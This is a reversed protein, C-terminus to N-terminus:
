FGEQKLMLDLRGQFEEVIKFQENTLDQGLDEYVIDKLIANVAYLAPFTENSTTIVMFQILQIGTLTSLPLTRLGNMM